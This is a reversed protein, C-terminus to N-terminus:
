SEGNVRKDHLPAMPPQGELMKRTREFSLDYDLWLIEGDVVGLNRHKRDTLPVWNPTHTSAHDVGAPAPSATRYVNMIGWLSFLVPNLGPVGSWEAESLNALVGRALMILKDRGKWNKLRPFKFAYRKTVLVTRTM